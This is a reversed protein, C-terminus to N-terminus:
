LLEYGRNELCRDLADRGAKSVTRAREGTGLVSLLAGAGAGVAAGELNSNSGDRLGGAITGVMAGELASINADEQAIQATTAQKQIALARCDALDVALEDTTKQSTVLDVTPLYGEAGVSNANGMDNYTSACGSLAVLLLGYGFHPFLKM